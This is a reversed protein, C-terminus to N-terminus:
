WHLDISELLTAMYVLQFTRHLFGMNGVNLMKSPTDFRKQVFKSDWTTYLAELGKNMKMYNFLRVYEVYQQNNIPYQADADTELLKEENEKGLYYKGMLVVNVGTMKLKVRLSMAKVSM